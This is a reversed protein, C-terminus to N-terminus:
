IWTEEYEPEKFGITFTDEEIAFPRKVLMGNSALIEAAEEISMEPIKDKLELKRYQQGSTNFFSKMTRESKNMLKIFTEKSPSSEKLNIWHYDVDKDDLWNQAKKCTTCTPHCYFEM